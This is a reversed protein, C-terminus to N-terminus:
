QDPPKLSETAEQSGIPALGYEKRLIDLFEIYKSQSIRRRDRQRALCAAQGALEKLLCIEDDTMALEFDQRGGLERGIFRCCLEEIPRDKEGPPSHHRLVVCDRRSSEQGAAVQALVRLSIFFLEQNDTRRRM